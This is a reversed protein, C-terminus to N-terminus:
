HIITYNNQDVSIIESHIINCNNRFNFKLVIKTFYFSLCKYFMLKNNVLSPKSCNDQILTIIMEVNEVRM